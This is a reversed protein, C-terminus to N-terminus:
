LSIDRNILNRVVERLNDAYCHKLGAPKCNIGRLIFAEVQYDDMATLTIKLCNVPAGTMKPMHITLENDGYVMQKAGTMAVFRSGGLQALITSATPSM